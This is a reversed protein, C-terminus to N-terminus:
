HKLFDFTISQERSEGVGLIELMGMKRVIDRGDPYANGPEVGLVYDREGMMKWETFCPLEKTDYSMVFGKGIKPNEVKVVAKGEMKHYFCMEEYGRQPKEMKLCNAIDINM